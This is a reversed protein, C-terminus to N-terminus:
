IQVFFYGYVISVGLNGPQNVNVRHTHRLDYRQPRGAARCCMCRRTYVTNTGHGYARQDHISLLSTSQGSTM